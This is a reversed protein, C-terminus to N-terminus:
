KTLLAAAAKDIIITVDKHDQLYSAPVDGTVKGEVTDKIAQAKNSGSAVLLISKSKMITAIGMSIATKPVDEKNAFMRANANITSETLKVEQTPSDKEAFPENFGIHANEGIGLLQIDVGGAAEIAKDYAPGEVKPDAMGSPVFTNEKNINTADFLNKNMFFRYSAEHTGEVGIYEDLNFTKVGSWDLKMSVLDEYTGIPTSGTALGLITTPNTKVENAIIKATEISVEEYNEKIIIKM